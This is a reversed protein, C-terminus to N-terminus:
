YYAIVMTVKDRDVFINYNRARIDIFINPFLTLRCWDPSTILCLVAMVKIILCLHAVAIITTNM